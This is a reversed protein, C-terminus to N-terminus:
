VYNVIEKIQEYEIEKPDKSYRKALLVALDATKGLDDAQEVTDSFRDEGMGQYNEEIQVVWEKM